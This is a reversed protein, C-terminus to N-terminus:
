IEEKNEVYKKKKDESWTTIDENNQTKEYGDKVIEQLNQSMFFTKM